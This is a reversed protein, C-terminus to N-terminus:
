DATEIARISGGRKKLNRVKRSHGNFARADHALPIDDGQSISRTTGQVVQLSTSVGHGALIGIGAVSAGPVFLPILRHVPRSV